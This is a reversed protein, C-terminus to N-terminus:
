VSGTLASPFCYAAAIRSRWARNLAVECVGAQEWSHIFRNPATIIALHKAVAVRKWRFIILDGPGAASTEIRKLHRDAYEIVHERGTIEGWDRTYSPLNEPERGLVERWVGRVLGLCDCGARKVSAQHCYPTGLWSRAVAVIRPRIDTHNM